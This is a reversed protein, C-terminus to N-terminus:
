VSIFDDLKCLHMYFTAFEELMKKLKIKSM